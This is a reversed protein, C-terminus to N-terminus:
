PAWWLVVFYAHGMGILVGAVVLVAILRGAHRTTVFDRRRRRSRELLRHVVLFLVPVLAGAFWGVAHLTVLDTRTGAVLLLAGSGAISLLSVGAPWKPPRVPTRLSATM